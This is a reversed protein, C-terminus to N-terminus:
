SATQFIAEHTYKLLEIMLKFGNLLTEVGIPATFRTKLHIIVELTALDRIGRKGSATILFQDRFFWTKIAHIVKAM